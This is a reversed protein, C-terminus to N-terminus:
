APSAHQGNLQAVDAHAKMADAHAAQAQAQMQQAKATEIALLRQKEATIGSVLEQKGPMDSANILLEIPFPQGSQMIAPALQVLQAFNEQRQNVTELDEDIKIDYKGLRLNNLIEVQGTNPDEVRQNLIVQGANPDDTIKILKQSTWYQQAEELVIAFADRRATRLAAYYPRLMKDSTVQRLEIAKGSMVKNEQGTFEKAIGTSEVESQALQLLFIDPQQVTGGDIQFQKGPKYQVVGDPKAAEKRTREIDVIAGEECVIRNTNTKHLLKSRRKNYEKQADMYQKVIGYPQNTKHDVKGLARAFPFKGESDHPRVNEKEELIKNAIFIGSNIEWRTRTFYQADKYIKKFDAKESESLKTLEQVAGDLAPHFAFEIRKQVREWVNILRIRNRKADSFIEFDSGGDASVNDSTAYDDGISQKGPLSGSGTSFTDGSIACADKIEDEFDPYLEILDEQEVWVHEWLRKADKMDIRRCRRDLIVDNYSRYTLKIEPELFDFELGIKYWGIGGIFLNKAVLTEQEDFRNQEEIYRLAETIYKATEFDNTGRDRARMMVRRSLFDGIVADIRPAILNIVVEPQNRAALAQKEEHSLQDGDYFNEWDVKKNAWEQHFKFDQSFESKWRKLKQSEEEAAITKASKKAM